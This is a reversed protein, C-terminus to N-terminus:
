IVTVKAFDQCQGEDNKDRCHGYREGLHYEMEGTVFNRVLPRELKRCKHNYWLHARPSSQDEAVHHKCNACFPKKTKPVASEGITPALATAAMTKLVDRRTADSM